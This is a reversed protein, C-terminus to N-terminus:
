QSNRMHSSHMGQSMCVTAHSNIPSPVKASYNNVLLHVAHMTVSKCVTKMRTCKASATIAIMHLIVMCACSVRARYRWSCGAALKVIDSVNEASPQQFQGEFMSMTEARLLDVYTVSYYQVHLVEEEKQM